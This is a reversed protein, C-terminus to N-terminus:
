KYFIKGEFDLWITLLSGARLELGFTESRFFHSEGEAARVASGPDPSVVRPEVLPPFNICFYPTYGM